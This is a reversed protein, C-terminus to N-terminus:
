PVGSLDGLGPEAEQARVMYRGFSAAVHGRGGGTEGDRGVEMKQVSHALQVLRTRTMGGEVRTRVPTAFGPDQSEKSHPFPPYTQLTQGLEQNKQQTQTWTESFYEAFTVWGPSTTSRRSLAALPLQTHTAATSM